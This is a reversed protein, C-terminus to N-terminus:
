RVRARPRYTVRRLFGGCNPESRGPLFFDLRSGSGIHDAVSFLRRGFLRRPRILSILHGLPIGDGPLVAVDGFRPPRGIATTAGSCYATAVTIRAPEPPLHKLVVYRAM